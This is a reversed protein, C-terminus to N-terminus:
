LLIPNDSNIIKNMPNYTGVVPASEAEADWDEDWDHSSKLIKQETKSQPIAKRWAPVDTNEDQFHIYSLLETFIFTKKAVQKM